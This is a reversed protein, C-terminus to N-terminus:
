WIRPWFSTVFNKYLTYLTSLNVRGIALERHSPSMRYLTKREPAYSKNERIGMINLLIFCLLTLNAVKSFTLCTESM